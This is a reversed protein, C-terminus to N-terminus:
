GSQWAIGELPPRSPRRSLRVEGAHRHRQRSRPHFQLEYLPRDDLYHRDSAAADTLTLTGGTGAINEVFNYTTAPPALFNTADITDGTGFGSITGLFSQAQKLTLADAGTENITQGASVSSDFQLNAGSLSFSGTVAEGVAGALEETDSTIM